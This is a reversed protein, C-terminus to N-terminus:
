IRNQAVVSAPAAVRGALAVTAKEETRASMGEIQVLPMPEHGFCVRYFDCEGSSYKCLPGPNKPYAAMEKSTTSAHIQEIEFRAHDLLDQTVDM